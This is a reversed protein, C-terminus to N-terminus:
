ACDLGGSRDGARRILRKRPADEVPAAPEPEPESQKVPKPRRTLPPATAILEDYSDMDVITKGAVKRLRLRGAADLKYTFSRSFGSYEFFPVLPMAAPRTTTKTMHL